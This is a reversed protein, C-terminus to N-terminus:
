SLQLRYTCAYVRRVFLLPETSQLQYTYFWVVGLRGNVPIRALQSKQNLAYPLAELSSSRFYNLNWTSLTITTDLHTFRRPQGFWLLKEKPFRFPAKLDSDDSMLCDSELGPVSKDSCLRNSAISLTTKIIERSLLHTVFNSRNKYNM